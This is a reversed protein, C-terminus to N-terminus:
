HHPRCLLLGTQHHLRQPQYLLPPAPPCNWQWASSYTTCASQRSVPILELCENTVVKVKIVTLTIVIVDWRNWPQILVTSVQCRSFIDSDSVSINFHKLVESVQDRVHRETVSYCKGAPLHSRLQLCLFLVAYTLYPLCPNAYCRTFVGRLHEPIAHMRLPDWLKARYVGCEDALLIFWVQRKRGLWLQDENVSGLPVSPQTLRPPHNCVLVLTWCRSSFRSVTAWGLVLRLRRLNVSFVFCIADCM